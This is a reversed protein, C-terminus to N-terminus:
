FNGVTVGMVNWAKYPGEYNYPYPTLKNVRNLPLIGEAGGDQYAYSAQSVEVTKMAALEKNTSEVNNANKVREFRKPDDHPLAGLESSFTSHKETPFYWVRSAKWVYVFVATGAAIAAWQVANTSMQTTKNTQVHFFFYIVQKM